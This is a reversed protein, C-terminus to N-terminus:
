PSVGIVLIIDPEESSQPSICTDLSLLGCALEGLVNGRLIVEM